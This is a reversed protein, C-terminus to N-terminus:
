NEQKEIVETIRAELPLEVYFISGEGSIGTSAAWLRGGHMEVLRRSIPLGLGTGGAKRTTSSDVQTFEQFIADLKDPEIGIGTDKVSILIRAGQIPAVNLSIHGQETFKIANNVLNIMVQRLRTHDAYIEVDQDSCEDISLALNKESALTSTISTVEDFVEHVKFTEPNLNMRGAEIKAMDLVDNILHLLHQGNKQVLRLDNDMYESLPGDLGELMVDTFGLISNLPTRLEHSMNALFSSKLRDLERLQTLTATQEAYLRANQLAIATQTALTTFINADEASFYNVQDSQVDFVGLVKDGVIMPVAMESRTDPLLQNSLFSSNADRVLDNAIVSQKNRAARAVISQEHDTPISWGDMVMQRGIEGAGAALLLTNWSDNTLYIHAHYLGFQEKTLDVVAQLLRDPELTTATTTSVEAVTQLEAARKAVAEEAQVRDSIDMFTTLISPEGQYDFIRASMLAWFAKGNEGRLQVVQDSVRGTTQLAIVFKKRDEVHVYFNPSLQEIVAEYKFGTVDLAPQNVFTLHNDRLRTIVMPITVSELIIQARAHAQRVIEESKKRETIDEAVGLLYKPKGDRGYVPAKRTHMFRVGRHVTALPEEPIDLTQGSAIVERDKATFFDAEEKPFFDHDNKGLMEEQSFGVLEEAAKNWRLFRLEEVDKVFLMHPLSEIVSDLFTQAEELDLSRQQTQELLRLNEIHGSLHQAVAEVLQAAEEDVSHVDDVALEGITEERVILPQKLAPESEHRVTESFAKVENLDYLYANAQSSDNLFDDWGERTLRRSVQEAELRYQEAQALLRLNEVHRALLDATAQAIESEAETWTQDVGHALQIAGVQAGTISIPITLTQETQLDNSAHSSVVDTQDFVYSIQESRHIANLFEQWGQQTFYRMQSEVESRAEQVETFLAANRIAIALQGALAQFAPLNSESLAGPQESQMDLVGIVQNEFILPVAMESRTYPLLSNPKFNSSQHTDSVIIPKRELVSEGNISSNDISLRHGRTLLEEGVEGTGARLVLRHGTADILYVQTYYLGFRSRIMEAAARLMESADSVKEAVTRGVEAALELDHTRDQVRQELSGVLYRLQSTMNNFTTALAGIEDSTNLKAEANLDGSAIQKAVVTLYIIPNTIFRALFYAIIIVAISILLTLVLNNRTQADIPQLAESKEQVVIVQWGLDELATTGEELLTSSYSRVPAASILVPIGELSIELGKNPSLAFEQLDTTAFDQVITFNGDGSAQLKIRQDNPQYIMSYGTQGRFGEILVDTLVDFAVTARLVGMFEGNRYSFVPVAIDLVISNTTPNFIPQGIYRGTTHATRWWLTDAQYYNSPLNTSAISFGKQDTLLIEVNEPFTKQFNRLQTSLPNYLLEIVRRDKMDKAAVTARWDLNLQEIEATDVPHLTEFSATEAGVQLTKVTALAKLKDFQGIIAQGVQFGQSKALFAQSEVIGTTLNNRLSRDTLFAVIAMSFVAVIVFTSILKTRINGIMAQRVIVAGIALLALAGAAVILEESPHADIRFAPNWIEVVLVLFAAMAAAAVAWLRSMRPFIFHIFILSFIILYGTVLVPINALFLAVLVPAFIVNALYLMQEGLNPHDRHILHASILSAIVILISLPLLAQDWATAQGRQTVFLNHMSFAFFMFSIAALVGATKLAAQKRKGELIASERNANEPKQLKDPMVMQKVPASASEETGDPQRSLTKELEAIRAKLTEVEHITVNALPQNKGSFISKFRRQIMEKMIKEEDDFTKAM